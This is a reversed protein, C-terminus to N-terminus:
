QVKSLELSCQIDRVCYMNHTWPLLTWPCPDRSDHFDHFCIDVDLYHDRFIWTRSFIHERFTQTWSFQQWAFNTKMPILTWPSNTNMYIQTWSLHTNEFIHACPFWYGNANLVTIYNGFEFDLQDGTHDVFSLPNAWNNVYWMTSGDIWCQAGYLTCHGLPKCIIVKKFNPSKSFIVKKLFCM